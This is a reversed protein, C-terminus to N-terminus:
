NLERIHEYLNNIRKSDIGYKKLDIVLQIHPNLQSQNSYLKYASKRCKTILVDMPISKEGPIEGYKELCQKFYLVIDHNCQTMIEKFIQYNPFLMRLKQIRPNDPYKLYFRLVNASERSLGFPSSFSQEKRLYAELLDIKEDFTMGAFMSPKKQKVLPLKEKLAAIEHLHSYNEYFYKVKSYLARNETPGPVKGLRTLEAQLYAVSEERTMTERSRSSSIPYTEILERVVPHSSYNTYYYKVSAHLARNEKQSPVHGLENLIQRIENVKKDIYERSAM